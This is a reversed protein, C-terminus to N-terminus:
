GRGFWGCICCFLSKHATQTPPFGATQVRAKGTKFRRWGTDRTGSLLHLWRNSVSFQRRSSVPLASGAASERDNPFIATVAMVVAVGILLDSMLETQVATEPATFAAISFFLLIASWGVMYARQSFAMPVTLVFTLVALTIPFWVSSDVVAAAVWILGVGIAGFAVMGTLRNRTPGPVDTLWVLLAGIFV